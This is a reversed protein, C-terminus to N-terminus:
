LNITNNLNNPPTKEKASKETEKKLNKLIERAHEGELTKEYNLLIQELQLIMVEKGNIKGALYAGLLSFKPILADTKYKELAQEVINRSDEFRGQEYMYYAKMYENEAEPSSKVFSNSRPNRAFEAYSTYPFDKLLINKARESVSPTKEYNMSFIQYLAQLMTKEEPHYDVLTYLTKSALPIDQFADRFLIGLQLMAEDREKKLKDIEAQSSPIQEIYYATEFRRPNATSTQGLAQSKVENITPMRQTYRWNDSLQRNGWIQRFDNIGRAVTNTNSFYFNKTNTGFNQFANTTNGFASSTSFETDTFGKQREEQIRRREEAEEKAKIKEIHKAFYANKEAENMKTLLLISDNKKILYYNDSVKKIDAGQKQVIKKTPEHTMVAIASDYYANAQIYDDIELYIKGLEYYSLGRIQPDSSKERLSKLFYEKAEQKREVKNAILGIAYLFENKRSAYTGKQSLNELYKKAESFDNKQHYTKAIEIQSKVEFEFSQAYEYAKQFQIRANSFDNKSLLIQGNLFAIRSKIDKSTALTFAKDLQASALEKEESKLLNEGHYIALLTTNERDLKQTALENFITNARPYDGMKSYALGEYIKAISLKNESYRKNITNMVDLAEIPKNMYIRSKMLTIYAEFVAKNKEKENRIVSYKEITKLAKAEAIELASTPTQATQKSSNQKTTQKNQNTRSISSKQDFSGGFSGNEEEEIFDKVINNEVAKEKQQEHPFISIFPAYFDEKHAEKRNKIESELAQQANFLTNYQAIFGKMFRSRKEPKKATCAILFSILLIYLASNKM